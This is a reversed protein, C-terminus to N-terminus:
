SHGLKAGPRPQYVANSGDDHYAIAEPDQKRTHRAPLSLRARGDRRTGQAALGHAVAVIAGLPGDVDLLGEVYAKGLTALSPKLLYGLASADRVRVTVQPAEGLAYAQGNWLELRLPLAAQRRIEDIWSELKKEWFM